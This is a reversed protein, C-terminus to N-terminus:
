QEMAIWYIDIGVNAEKAKVSIKFNSTTIIQASVDVIKNDEAIPVLMVSPTNNFETAFEITKIKSSEAAGSTVSLCGGQTLPMDDFSKKINKVTETLKDIENAKDVLGSIEQASDLLNNIEEGSYKLKYSVKNAM